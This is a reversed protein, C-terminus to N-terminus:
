ARGPCAPGSSQSIGPFGTQHHRQQHRVGEGASGLGAPGLPGGGDRCSFRQWTNANVGPSNPHPQAVPVGCPCWLAPPATSRSGWRKCDGAM